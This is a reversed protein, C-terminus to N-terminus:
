AGDLLSELGLTLESFAPMPPTIEAWVPGLGLRQSVAVPFSTAIDAESNGLVECRARWAGLHVCAAPAVFDAPALPAPICRLAEVLSKPFNWSIALEASVDSYHFGLQRTELEPRAADLVSLQQDLSAVAAPAVVHLQLQGVAHLLGLTFTLDSNVSCRQALWRAACATYLNYRWFLPLNIGATNRYASALGNGLVLNRVIAFGLIRIAHDVTGISKSVQFYASNALWLLKASLAPDASILSAIEEISVDEDSFSQIIKQAVKPIVPLKGPSDTLTKIDMM